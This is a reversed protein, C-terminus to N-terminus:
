GAREEESRLRAALEAAARAYLKRAKTEPDDGPSVTQEVAARLGNHKGLFSNLEEYRRKGVQVWFKDKDRESPDFSYVFNVRAKLEDEPPM